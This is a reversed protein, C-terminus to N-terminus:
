VLKPLSVGADMYLVQGHMEDALHSCLFVFGDGIATPSNRKGLPSIRDVTRRYEEDTEYIAKSAGAAVNGPALCNIRIGTEGYELALCKSFSELGGKAACYASINKWPIRSVWTTTFVLHGQTGREMWGGLVARALYTQATLNLHIVEDFYERSTEAFPHLVCGGANALVVNLEPHAEFVERVVADTADPDTFPMVRYEFRDRHDGWEDLQAQAEEVPMIDTLILRAGAELLRPVIGERGIGGLAGTLLITKDSLDLAIM